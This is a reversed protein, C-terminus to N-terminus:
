CQRGAESAVGEKKKEPQNRPRLGRAKNRDVSGGKIEDLQMSKFVSDICVVGLLQDEIRGEGQFELNSYRVM